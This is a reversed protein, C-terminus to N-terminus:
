GFGRVQVGQAGGNGPQAAVAGPAPAAGTVGGQAILRRMDEANHAAQTAQLKSIKGARLLDAISSDMTQMGFQSGTQMVTYIQHVKGERILHRVAPTVILIESAVVRGRGDATQLLQQTVVGQLTTSLQVRIQPQQAPPFVDIIRDITQPADQTHLTGFVLHGTEAATIATSITELDRMEGVLIVDPDQRLVRKLAEAFSETDVGVERQTVASRKHQHLFEIPDEVTMIHARREQNVLDVLSALTTSKGSGTPGTVLVLGRPVRALDAVNTPLGLDDVSKLEFPILRFAAALSDRQYYCNVRFRAKGPISYSIDLELEEELREQHRDSIISYVLDQVDAPKLSPYNELRLLDGNIRIFPPGGAVLHLDSAGRDAVFNLIDLISLRTPGAAAPAAGAPPPSFDEETRVFAEM